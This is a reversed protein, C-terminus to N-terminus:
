LTQLSVHSFSLQATKTTRTEASLPTIAHPPERINRRRKVDAKSSFRLRPNTKDHTVKGDSLVSEPRRDCSAPVQEHTLNRNNQFQVLATKHFPIFNFHSTSTLRLWAHLDGHERESLPAREDPARPMLKRPHPFNVKRITTAEEPRAQSM